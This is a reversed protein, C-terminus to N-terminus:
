MESDKLIKYDTYSVPDEKYQGMYLLKKTNEDVVVISNRSDMDKKKPDIEGIIMYLKDDISRSNNITANKYLREVRYTNNKVLVKNTKLDISTQKIEMNDNNKNENSVIQLIDDNISYTYLSYDEHNNIQQFELNLSEEIYSFENKNLDYYAIYSNTKNEDEKNVTFYVKNEYEFTISVSFEIGEKDKTDIENYKELKQKELNLKYVNIKSDGNEILRGNNDYVIDKNILEFLYIDDGKTVTYNINYLNSESELKEHSTFVYTNEQQTKIDKTNLTYIIEVNEGYNVESNLNGITDGIKFINDEHFYSSFFDEDLKFIDENKMQYPIQNKYAEVKFGGKSLTNKHNTYISESSQSIIKVDGINEKKGAIDIIDFKPQNVVTSVGIVIMSSIVVGLFVKPLHKNM